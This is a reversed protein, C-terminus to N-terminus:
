RTHPPLAAPHRLISFPFAPAEVILDVTKVIIQHEYLKAYPPSSRIGGMLYAVAVQRAPLPDLEYSLVVPFKGFFIELIKKIIAAYCFLFKPIDNVAPPRRM